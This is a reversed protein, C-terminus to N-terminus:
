TREKAKMMLEVAYAALYAAMQAAHEATLRFDDAYQTPIVIVQGNEEDIKLHFNSVVAYRSIEWNSM